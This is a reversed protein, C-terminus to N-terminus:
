STRTIVLPPLTVIKVAPAPAVVSAPAVVPAPTAALRVSALQSQRAVVAARAAIKQVLAMDRRLLQERQTLAVLRTDNSSPPTATRWPHAAIAAWTLLMTLLSAALAYLRITHNSTMM